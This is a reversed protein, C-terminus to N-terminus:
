SGYLPARNVSSPISEASFFVEVGPWPGLRGEEYVVLEVDLGRETVLRELQQRHSEPVLAPTTM